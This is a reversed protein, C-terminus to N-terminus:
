KKRIVCGGLGNQAVVTGQVASVNNLRIFYAGPSLAKWVKQELEAQQGPGVFLRNLVVIDYASYSVEATLADDVWANCWEQSNELKSFLAEAADVYEPVADFGDCEMVFFESAIAMLQGTGCGIDLLRIAVHDGHIEDYLDTEELLDGFATLPYPANLHRGDRTASTSNRETEACIIRWAEENRETVWNM